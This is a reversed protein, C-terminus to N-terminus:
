TSCSILRAAHLKAARRTRPRPGAQAQGELVRANAVLQRVAELSRESLGAMDLAVDRVRDNKLALAVEAPIEGRGTEAEDFFYTPSVAFFRSLGVVVKYTPNDKQGTRLQWIYTGSAIHEGAADNIATAVEKPTYPKRGEPASRLLRDLRRAFLGAPEQATEAM